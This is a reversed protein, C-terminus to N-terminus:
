INTDVDNTSENTTPNSLIVDTYNDNEITVTSNINQKKTTIIKQPVSKRKKSSSSSTSLSPTLKQDDISSVINISSTSLSIPSTSSDPDINDNFWSNNLPVITPLDDDDDNLPSTSVKDTDISHVYPKTRMRANHFWNSIKNMPLSLEDVLQELRTQSPYPENEFIDKLVRRQHDTFLYRRKSSNTNNSETDIHQTTTRTPHTGRRLAVFFHMSHILISFNKIKGDREQKWALLKQVNGADHFWTYM